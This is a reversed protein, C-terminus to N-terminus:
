PNQKTVRFEYLGPTYTHAQPIEFAEGNWVVHEHNLVEVSFHVYLAVIGDEEEWFEFSMREKPPIYVVRLQTPEKKAAYEIWAYVAEKVQDLNFGEVESLHMKKEPYGEPIEPYTSPLSPGSTFVPGGFGACLVEYEASLNGNYFNTECSLFVAEAEDENTIDSGLNESDDQEVNSETNQSLVSMGETPNEPNTQESSDSCAVVSFAFVFGLLLLFCKKM